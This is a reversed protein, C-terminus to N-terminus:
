SLARDHRGNKLPCEACEPKKRCFNKALEVILAHFEQYCKVSHPLRSEFFNQAQAYGANRYWGTREGLRMTYADVVFKLRQGAYLIISDATEPGIGRIDLLEQRLDELPATKLWKGLGEPHKELLHKCFTRIKIEKQVFFGSPRIIKQLKLARTGAIAWPSLLKARNLNELAREVNKWATNQTLIAGISIEFKEREGTKFNVGPHYRPKWGGRPTVPWWGQPGFRRLLISYVQYPTKM